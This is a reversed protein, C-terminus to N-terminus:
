PKENLGPQCTNGNWSVIGGSWNPYRWPVGQDLHASGNTQCEVIYSPNSDVAPTYYYAYTSCSGNIVTMGPCYLIKNPLYKNMGPVQNIWTNTTPLMGGNENRYLEVAVALAKLNSECAVLQSRSKAKRTNPLGITMLIAIISIVIMIEVLTFGSRGSRSHSWAGVLVYHAGKSDVRGAPTGHTGVGPGSM